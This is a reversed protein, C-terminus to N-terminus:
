PSQPYRRRGDGGHVAAAHIRQLEVGAFPPLEAGCRTCVVADREAIFGGVRRRTRYTVTEAAARAARRASM